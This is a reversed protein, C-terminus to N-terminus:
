ETNEEPETEGAWDLLLRIASEIGEAKGAWFMRRYKPMNPTGVNDKAAQYQVQLRSIMGDKDAYITRKMM